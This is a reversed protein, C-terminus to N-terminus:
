GFYKDLSNYFKLKLICYSIIRYALKLGIRKRAMEKTSERFNTLFLSHYKKRYISMLSNFEKAILIQQSKSFKKSFKITAFIRDSETGYYLEKKYYLSIMGEKKGTDLARLFLNSNAKEGEMLRSVVIPSQPLNYIEYGIQYNEKKKLNLIFKEKSPYFISPIIEFDRKELKKKFSFACVSYTTDTFVQEEFIKLKEISFRAFFSKKLNDRTQSFFNLPLIFIGGECDKALIVAIKYLDDTNYKKYIIKDTNNNLAMYPPNLFVWKDKLDIPNRFSDNRLTYNNKPDVDFGIVMFRDNEKSEFEDWNTTITANRREILLNLLDWNGAFLDIVKANNPFINILDGCMYNSNTTFFQGLERKRSM